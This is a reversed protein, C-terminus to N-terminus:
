TEKGSKCTDRAFCKENFVGWSEIVYHGKGGRESGSRHFSITMCYSDRLEKIKRQVTAHSVGTREVLDKMTPKHISTLARLLELEKPAVSQEIDSKSTSIKTGM